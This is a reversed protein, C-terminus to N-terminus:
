HVGKMVHTIDRGSRRARIACPSCQDGDGGMIEEPFLVNTCSRCTPGETPRKREEGRPGRLSAASGRRPLPRRSM